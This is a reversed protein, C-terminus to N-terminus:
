SHFRRSTKGQCPLYPRYSPSYKNMQIFLYEDHIFGQPL